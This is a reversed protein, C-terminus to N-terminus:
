PRMAASAPLPLPMTTERAAREANRKEVAQKHEAIEKQRAEFAERQRKETASRDPAPTRPAPPSKAPRSTAVQPLKPERRPSSAVERVEAARAKGAVRRAQDTARQRRQADDLADEQARLGQLAKQRAARAKELCPTVVFEQRCKQQQLSHREEVADKEQRIQERKASDDAWAMGWLALLLLCGVLAKM